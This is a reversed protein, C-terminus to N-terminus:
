RGGKKSLRISEMTYSTVLTGWIVSVLLVPVAGFNWIFGGLVCFLWLGICLNQTVQFSKYASKYIIFLEAEDCSEEWKKQFKTDYVSGKKEPNIEKELNVIKQQEVILLIIGILFTIVMFGASNLAYRQEIASWYDLCFATGFVFYNWITNMSTLWLAYSLRNEVQNMVEEDEGDWALFTKRSNRYVILVVISVILTVVPIGYPLIEFTLDLLIKNVVDIGWYKVSVMAIGALGGGMLALVRYLIFKGIAKKDESKIRAIEQNM